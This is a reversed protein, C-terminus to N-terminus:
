PTHYPGWPDQLGKVHNMLIHLLALTVRGLIGNVLKVSRCFVQRQREGEPSVGITVTALSLIGPRVEFVGKYNTLVFTELM